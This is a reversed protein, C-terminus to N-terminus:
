LSWALVAIDFTEHPFPLSEARAQVFAVRTCLAPPCQRRARALQESNTDIGVVCKTEAAYRWTLRGEGCGIELVHARTVGVSNHLHTTESGEPDRQAPMVM